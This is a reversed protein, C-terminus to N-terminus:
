PLAQAVGELERRLLAAAYPYSYGGPYSFVWFQYHRRIDLDDRMSNILPAWVSPTEHLGHVLIVPTRQPDFPQFFILRATDAYKEPRLFEGLRYKDPREMVLTMALPATFDGALRRPRGGIVVEEASLREIFEIKARHDQFKIVATVAAYVRKMGFRTRDDRAKDRGIAVV